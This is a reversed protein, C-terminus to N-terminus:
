EEAIKVPFGRYVECLPAIRQFKAVGEASVQTGAISVANLQLAALRLLGRDTIHTNDLDLIQLNRCALINDIGADTVLTENLFLADLKRCKRLLALDKDAVNAFLQVTRVRDFIDEGLIQRVWPAGRPPLPPWGQRDEQSNAEENQRFILAGLVDLKAVAEREERVMQAHYAVASTVVAVSFFFANM